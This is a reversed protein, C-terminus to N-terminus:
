IKEVVLKREFGNKKDYSDLINVVKFTHKGDVPVEIEVHTGYLESWPMSYFASDPQLKITYQLRPRSMKSLEDDLLDDLSLGDLM